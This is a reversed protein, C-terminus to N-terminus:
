KIFAIFSIMFLEKMILFSPLPVKPLTGAIISSIIHLSDQLVHNVILLFVLNLIELFQPQIKGLLLWLRCYQTISELDIWCM